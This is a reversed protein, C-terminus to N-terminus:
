PADEQGRALPETAAPLLGFVQPKVQHGFWPTGNTHQGLVHGVPPPIQEGALIGLLAVLSIVPPASSHVHIFGYVVGVLLGAALSLLRAKV